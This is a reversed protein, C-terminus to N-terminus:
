ANQIINYFKDKRANVIKDSKAIVEKKLTIIKSIVFAQYAMIIPINIVEFSISSFRVGFIYEDKNSNEDEIVDFYIIIGGIYFLFSIVYGLKVIRKTFTSEISVM